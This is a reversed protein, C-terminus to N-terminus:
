CLGNAAGFPTKGYLDRRKELYARDCPMCLVQYIGDKRELVLRSDAEGNGRSLEDLRQYTRGCEQCGDPMRGSTLLELAKAHWDYCSWCVGTIPSHVFERPDRPKSCGRCTVRLVQPVSM